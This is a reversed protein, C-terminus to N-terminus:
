VSASRSYDVLFPDKLVAISIKKTGTTAYQVTNIDSKLVDSGGSGSFILEYYGAETNSYNQVYAFFMPNYGLNHNVTLSGQGQTVSQVLPSRCDSHIVFDDLNASSVDKTPKAIKFVRSGSGGAVSGIRNIPATFLQNIDILFIYYYITLSGIETFATPAFQLSTENIGIHGGGTPGFFESRTDTSLVTGFGNQWAQITTNAFFWFMPVFGLNHNFINTKQTVDPITFSGQQYIPLLPWQSSYILNEDGATKVDYGKQALKIVRAM